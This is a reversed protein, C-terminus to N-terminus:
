ASLHEIAAVSGLRDALRKLLALRNRRLATDEVNVMVVLGPNRAMARQAGLTRCHGEIPCITGDPRTWGLIAPVHVQNAPPLLQSEYSVAFGEINAEVEPDNYHRVNFGEELVIASAVVQYITKKKVNADAADEARTKMTTAAM